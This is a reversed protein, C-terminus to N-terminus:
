RNRGGATKVSLKCSLVNKKKFIKRFLSLSTVNKLDEGACTPNMILFATFLTARMMKGPPSCILHLIEKNSRQLSGTLDLTLESLLLLCSTRPERDTKFSRFWVGVASGDEWHMLEELVSTFFMKVETQFNSLDLSLANEYCLSSFCNFLDSPQLQTVIILM